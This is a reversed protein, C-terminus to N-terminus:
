RLKPTVRVNTYGQERYKDTIMKIDAQLDDRSFSNGAQTKLHPAIDADESFAKLGNIKVGSVKYLKGEDVKIVLDDHREDVPVKAVGMVKCHFYGRDKYFGEIAKVDDAISDANTRGRNLLNNVSQEKQSMVEKIQEATFAKVGEFSVNRLISNAKEEIVFLLNVTGKNGVKQMHCDVITDRYGRKKYLYLIDQRAKYIASETVVRNVPLEIAKQLRRDPFMQNGEFSAGAFVPSCEVVVILGIGGSVDKSLIQANKIEGTAHLTKLDRDIRAMLLPQGVKTQLKSIVTQESLLKTGVYQVDISKVM